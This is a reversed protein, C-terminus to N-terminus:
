HCYKNIFHIIVKSFNPSSWLNHHDYDDITHIKKPQVAAHFLKLGESYPVIQDKTGHLILLPANMTAIRKSSNYKDWPSIFLWPYHYRSLNELSTFPSQLIVACFRKKNAIKTAVGTGLSEGYVVIKKPEIGHQILYNLGAEADKYLGQETPSGRNGGYGRYELLLVGIGSNIFQRILPMRYGIHGANGHLYLLTPENKRAMKYWSHLIMNDATRIAVSHLDQAHFKKLNPVHRDPFYILHRQFVYMLLLVTGFIVSAILLIQKLM